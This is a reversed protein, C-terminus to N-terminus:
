TIRPCSVSDNIDHILSLNLDLLHADNEQRLLPNFSISFPLLKRTSTTLFFRERLHILTQSQLQVLQEMKDVLFATYKMDNNQRFASLLSLFGKQIM